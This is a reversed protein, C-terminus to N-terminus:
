YYFVWDVEARREFTKEVFRPRIGWKNGHSWQSALSIERQERGPVNTDYTWQGELLTTFQASWRYLLRVNPGAGLFFHNHCSPTWQAAGRLGAYLNLRHDANETSYGGGLSFAGAQCFEGESIELRETGFRVRWSPAPEFQNYASASFVEFLTFKDLELRSKKQSYSFDFDGFIIEAYPPYGQLPDLQDHLAFRYDLHLYNGTKDSFKGGASIRRSGHGLHPKDVDLPELKLPPSNLAIASRASLLQEKFQAPATGPTQVEVAYKFDQFDLATDLIRRRQDESFSDLHIKHTRHIELVAAREEDNLGQLRTVFETHISPRFHFGRVLNPVEWILRITDSPIVYKKMRETLGFQPDAGDILALIWYSCNETLYYYRIDTPGLEWLHAVFFEVFRSDVNLEYEWLDRSEANNYERVKFYYPLSTFSGRFGGSMGKYMYVLANSSDVDAAYNVGYDLLEYRQGNEARKRNIRLFSHGFASSPNNLYYSSFVVSVSEGSLANLYADFKPCVPKPWASALAPFYKQFWRYRAPFRCFPNLSEALPVTSNAAENFQGLTAKLELAPDRSGAEGALFFKESTIKSSYSSPGGEYHLLQIWHPNVEPPAAFASAALFSLLFIFIISQM